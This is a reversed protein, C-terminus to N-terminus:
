VLAPVDQFEYLDGGWPQRHTITKRELKGRCEACIVPQGYVVEKKQDSSGMRRVLPYSRKLM